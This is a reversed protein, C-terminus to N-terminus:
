IDLTNGGCLTALMSLDVSRQCLLIDLGSGSSQGAFKRTLTHESAVLFSLAVLLLAYAPKYKSRRDKLFMNIIQFEICIFM